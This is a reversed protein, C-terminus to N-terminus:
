MINPVIKTAIYVAVEESFGRKVLADCVLRITLALHDALKEMDVELPGLPKEKERTLEEFDRRDSM